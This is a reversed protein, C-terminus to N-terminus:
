HALQAEKLKAKFFELNHILVKRKNEDPVTADIIVRLDRFPGQKEMPPPQFPKKKEM